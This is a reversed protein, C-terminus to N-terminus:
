RGSFFDRAQRLTEFVAKGAIAGYSGLERASFGAGVVLPDSVNRWQLYAGPFTDPGPFTEASPYLGVTQPRPCRVAVHVLKGGATVVGEPVASNVAETDLAGHYARNNAYTAKRYERMSYIASVCGHLASRHAVSSEDSEKCLRDFEFDFDENLRDLDATPTWLNTPM